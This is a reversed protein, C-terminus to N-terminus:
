EEEPEEEKKDQPKNSLDKMGFEEQLQSKVSSFEGILDKGYFAFGSAMIATMLGDRTPNVLLGITMGVAICVLAQLSEQIPPKYRGVVLKTTLVIIIIELLDKVDVMMDLGGLM